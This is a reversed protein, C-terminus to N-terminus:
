EYTAKLEKRGESETDLYIKMGPEITLDGGDSTIKIDKIHLDAKKGKIVVDKIVLSYLEYPKLLYTTSYRAGVNKEEGNIALSLNNDTNNIVVLTALPQACLGNNIFLYAFFFTTLLAIKQTKM